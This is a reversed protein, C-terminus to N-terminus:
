YIEPAHECPDVTATHGRWDLQWTTGSFTVTADDLSFVGEDPAACDDAVPADLWLVGDLAGGAAGGALALPAGDRVLQLGTLTTDLAGNTLPGSLEASWATPTGQWTGELDLELARAGLVAESRQVGVEGRDVDLWVHGGIDTPLLGSYPICSPQAYDLEQVYSDVAGVRSTCPCGCAGTHRLTPEDDPADDAHSLLEAAVVSGALAQAAAEAVRAHEEAVRAESVCGVALGAAVLAAARV